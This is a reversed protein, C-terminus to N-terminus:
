QDAGLDIVLDDTAEYIEITFKETGGHGFRSLLKQLNPAVKARVNMLDDVEAQEVNVVLTGTQVGDTEDRYWPTFEGNANTTAISPRGEAPTLTLRVGPIPQGNYLLKGSVEVVKYPGSNFCGVSLSLCGLMLGFLIRGPLRASLKRDHYQNM